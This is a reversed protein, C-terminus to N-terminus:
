RYRSVGASELLWSKGEPATEIISDPLEKRFKFSYILDGLNLPRDIGLTKAAEIMEDRDFEFTAVGRKWHNEFIHSIIPIYQAAKDARKAM